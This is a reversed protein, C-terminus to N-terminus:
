NGSLDCFPINFLSIFKKRFFYIFTYLKSELGFYICQILVNVMFSMDKLLLHDCTGTLCTQRFSM